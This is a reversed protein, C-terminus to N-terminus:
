NQSTIKIIIAFPHSRLTFNYFYSSYGFLEKPTDLLPEMEDGSEHEDEGIMMMM